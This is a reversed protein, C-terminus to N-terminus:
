TGGLNSPGLVAGLDTRQVELCCHCHPGWLCAVLWWTEKQDVLLRGDGALPTQHHSFHSFDLASHNPILLFQM